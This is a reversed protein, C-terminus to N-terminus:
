TLQELREVASELRRMLDTTPTTPKRPPPTTGYSSQMVHMLNDVVKSRRSDGHLLVTRASYDITGYFVDRALWVPVDKKLAGRDVGRRFLTDFVSVYTKMYRRSDPADAQHTQQLTMTLKIVDFREIVSRLHFEALARIADIPDDIKHVATQAGRTLDRWFETVIARMLDVKTKYYIYVTGEAIGARRAIEAMRAGDYGREVFVEQAARLIAQEREEVKQRRTRSAGNDPM